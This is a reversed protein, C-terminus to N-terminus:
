RRQSKYANPKTAFFLAHVTDGRNTAVLAADALKGALKAFQAGQTPGAKYSNEMVGGQGGEGAQAHYAKQPDAM